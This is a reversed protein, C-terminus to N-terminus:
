YALNLSKKITNIHSSNELGGIKSMNKDIIYRSKLREIYWYSESEEYFWLYEINPLQIASKLTAMLDSSTFLRPNGNKKNSTPRIYLGIAKKMLRNYLISDCGFYSGAAKFDKSANSFDTDKKHYYTQEQGDILKLDSNDVVQLMGAVLPVILGYGTRLYNNTENLGYLNQLVNKVYSPGCTLIIEANPFGEKIASIIKSGREKVKDKIAKVQKYYKVDLLPYYYNDEKDKYIYSDVRELKLNGIFDDNSKWYIKKGNGTFLDDLEGRDKVKDIRCYADLGDKKLKYDVFQECYFLLNLNQPSGYTETDLVIGKLGSKFAIRSAVKLNDVMKSWAKDDEWPSWNVEFLPLILYNNKFRGFDCDGMDAVANTFDAYNLTVSNKFVSSSLAGKGNGYYGTSTSNNLRNDNFSVCLGAFPLTKEWLKYNNKLLRTDPSQQPYSIIPAQAKCSLNTFCTILFISIYTYNFIM